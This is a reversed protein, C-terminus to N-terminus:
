LVDLFSYYMIVLIIVLGLVGSFVIKKDLKDDFEVVMEEEELSVNIIEEVQSRIQQIFDTDKQIAGDLDCKFFEQVEKLQLQGSVGIVATEPLESKVVEFVERGNMGPLFYDLLVINPSEHNLQDVMEEGSAFTKVVCPLKEQLDWTIIKALVCDDEVLYVLTKKRM